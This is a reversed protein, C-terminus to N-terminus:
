AATKLKITNLYQIKRSSDEILQLQWEEKIYNYWKNGVRKNMKKIYDVIVLLKDFESRSSSELDIKGVLQLMGLGEFYDRIQNVLSVIDYNFYRSEEAISICEETFDTWYDPPNLSGGYSTKEIIDFSHIYTRVSIIADYTNPSIMRIINLSQDNYINLVKKLERRAYYATAIKAFLRHKTFEQVTIANEMRNVIHKVNRDAVHIFAIKDKNNHIKSIRNFCLAMEKSTCLIVKHMQSWSSTVFEQITDFRYKWDSKTDYRPCYINIGRSMAEREEEFAILDEQSIEVSRYSETADKILKLMYKRVKAALFMPTTTKLAERFVPTDKIYNIFDKYHNAGKKAKILEGNNIARNTLKNFDENDTIRYIKNTRDPHEFFEFVAWDGRMTKESKCLRSDCISAYHEICLAILSKITFKTVNINWEKFKRLNYSELEYFSGTIDNLVRRAERVDLLVEGDAYELHYKENYKYFDQLSDLNKDVDEFRKIIEYCSDKIRDTILTIEEEEYRISERSPTVRLEGINFKIGIPINFTNIDEFNDYNIPYKVRKYCIDARSNGNGRRRYVFNEFEYIKIENSLNTNHFWVDNFYFLQNAMADEFQRKETLYYSSTSADYSQTTDLMLRVETGNPENTEIENLIDYEPIDNDGYYIIYTYEIGDKRSVIYYEDKISLPSKSGIGFMGIAVNSQRKTSNGYSMYINKMFEKDMGPGFDKFFIYKTGVSDEEFGVIVAGQYGSEAHADFCNSVLERVISGRADSYQNALTRFIHGLHAVEIKAQSGTTEGHINEVDKRENKQEIM